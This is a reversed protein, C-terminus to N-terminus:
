TTAVAEVAERLAGSAALADGDLLDAVAAHLARVAARVGADENTEGASQHVDMCMALTWRAATGILDHVAPDSVDTVYADLAAALARTRAAREEVRRARAQRAREAQTQARDGLPPRGKKRAVNM